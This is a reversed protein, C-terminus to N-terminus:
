VKETLPVIVEKLIYIDILLFVAAGLLCSLKNVLKLKPRNEKSFLLILETIAATEALVVPLAMFILLNSTTTLLEMYHTMYM